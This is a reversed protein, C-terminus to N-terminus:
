VVFPSFGSLAVTQKEMSCAYGHSALTLVDFPLVEEEKAPPVKIFIWHCSLLLFLRLDPGIKATRM